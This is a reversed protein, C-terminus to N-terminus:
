PLATAHLWLAIGGQSGGMILIKNPNPGADSRVYNILELLDQMEITSITSLRTGQGKCQFDDYLLRVAGSGQL